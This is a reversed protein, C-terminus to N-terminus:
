FIQLSLFPFNIIFKTFVKFLYFSYKEFTYFFTIGKIRKLYFGIGIRPRLISSVVGLPM